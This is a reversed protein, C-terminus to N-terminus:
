LLEDSYDSLLLHPIKSSKTTELIELFINLQKVSADICYLINNVFTKIAFLLTRTRKRKFIQSKTVKKM